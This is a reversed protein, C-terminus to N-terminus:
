LGVFSVRSACSSLARKLTASASPSRNGRLSLSFYHLFMSNFIKECRGVPLFITNGPTKPLARCGDRGGGGSRCKRRARQRRQFCTREAAKPSRSCTRFGAPSVWGGGEAGCGRVLVGGAGLAGLAAGVRRRKRLNSCFLDPEDLSPGCQDACWSRGMPSVSSPTASASAATQRTTGTNATARATGGAVATSGRRAANQAQM